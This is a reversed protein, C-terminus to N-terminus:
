PRGGKAKTRPQNKVIRVPGTRSHLFHTYLGEFLAIGRPELESDPLNALQWGNLIADVGDVVPSTYRGDRLDIEHVIEALARLGADDLGFKLRMTEFTCLSGQHGFPAGDMDFAIEGPQPQASYRIAAHNDVFRRILWACALRDVYPRPRTVWTKDRYEEIPVASIQPLSSRRLAVPRALAALRAAVRAGAPCRFYDVREIEAQRRRLRDLSNQLPEGGSKAQIAKELGAIQADLEAYEATRAEDFLAVLQADDLGDFHEVRMVLAEGKAQRIEQALWQFSEVCEDRAPLVYVGGAPSIAGLRRLRRGLTVRPSSRAQSTISYSFALWEM